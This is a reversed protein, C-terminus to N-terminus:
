TDEKMNKLFKRGIVNFLDPGSGRGACHGAAWMSSQLSWRLYAPAPLFSTGTFLGTTVPDKQWHSVCLLMCQYTGWQTSPLNEPCCCYSSCLQQRIRDEKGHRFARFPQLSKAPASRLLTIPPTSTSCHILSGINGRGGGPSKQSSRSSSLIYHCGNQFQPAPLCYLILSGM